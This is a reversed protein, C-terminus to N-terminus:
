FYLTLHNKNGKLIANSNFPLPGPPIAGGNKDSPASESSSEFFRKFLVGFGIEIGVDISLSSPLTKKELWDIKKHANIKNQLDNSHTM